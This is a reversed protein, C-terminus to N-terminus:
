THCYNSKPYPPLTNIEMGVEVFISMELGMNVYIVDKIRMKMSM